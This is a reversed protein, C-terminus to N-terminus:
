LRVLGQLGGTAEGSWRADLGRDCQAWRQGAVEVRRSRTCPAGHGGRCAPEKVSRVAQGGRQCRTQFVGGRSWWGHGAAEEKCLHGSPLGPPLGLAAGCDPRSSSPGAFPAQEQVPDKRVSPCPVCGATGVWAWGLEPHQHAPCSGM